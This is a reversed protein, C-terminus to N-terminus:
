QVFSVLLDGQSVKEGEKVYIKDIVGDEKAVVSTEMKMAEVTLLPQNKKVEDGEKVLVKSVTGLISSGLHFPNNKDAKLKGDSKVELHKDLVKIERMVGNIEFTLSRLGEENPETMDVYKITIEKGEGIELVTEEGKALGFFFVDSSLKSVDTYVEWHNAYEDYVKPYLAYSLKNRPNIDKYSHEERLHREIADFDVPEMLAGARGEIPKAGKLVIKQLDAPFGGEPQGINGTFYDVVSDPYSLDAGETLINDQTLGNKSMFIAMDGVVKSSPTVKVINGLLDNAQKYLHKIEEFQDASGMAKVQALLNSYQGGPIEYKYIETNPTKMESEFGTFIQRVGQYYQSIETLQDTDLGTDRETGKLAEVVANMSPQSTLSSMSQIAADAIDVGAEAAMLITSVGNGTTDHTHLHLPINLEAKLAEFLKKAAYPKLLGAMDKIAFIHVGLAELEKAKRVYYDLTYKTENPDLIDGTYCIAGEVIKGTKLAEEITMKMNEVWILS